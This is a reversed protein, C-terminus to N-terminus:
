YLFDDDAGAPDDKPAKFKLKKAWLTVKNGTGPNTFVFVQKFKRSKLAAIASKQSGITTAILAGPAGESNGAYIDEQFNEVIDDLAERITKISGSFGGIEDAGCCYAFGNRSIEAM